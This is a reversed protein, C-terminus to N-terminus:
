WINAYPAEEEGQMRQCRLSSREVASHRPRSGGGWEGGERDVLHLFRYGLAPAVLFFADVGLLSAEERHRASGASQAQPSSLTVVPSFHPGNINVVQVVTQVPKQMRLLTTNHKCFCMVGHTHRRPKPSLLAVKSSCCTRDSLHIQGGVVDAMEASYLVFVHAM